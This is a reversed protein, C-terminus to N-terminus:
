TPHLRMGCDRAQRAVLETFEAREATEDPYVVDFELRSGAKAYVGGAGVRWGSEEILRRGRAVDREIKPLDRAFAWHTPIIPSDIASARRDTSADVTADKDICAQMAQRLRRDAFPRGPRVNYEMSTYRLTPLSIVRARPDKALESPALDNLGPLWDVSGDRFAAVAAENSLVVFRIERTVPAGLHYDPFAELVVERGPVASAFRYPGAGVPTRNFPLSLYAAAIADVGTLGLSAALQGLEDADNLARSCADFQGTPSDVDNERPWPEVGAGRLADDAEDLLSACRDVKNAEAVTRLGGSLAELDSSKVRATDATARIHEFQPEIVHRPTILVTALILTMFRVDPHALHFIVRDPGAAEASALMDAICAPVAFSCSESSAVAYSFVVDDPTVPTGDHFSAARLTCTVDLHDGSIDCREALDPVPAYDPAFRLLASHVFGPMRTRAWNANSLRPVEFEQITISDSFAPSPAAAVTSASPDPAPSCGPAAVLVAALALPM